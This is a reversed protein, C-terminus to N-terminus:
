SGQNRNRSLEARIEAVPIAGERIVRFESGSSFDLVTSPKGGPTNGADLTLIDRDVFYDRVQEVSSSPKKGARNASTSTVPRDFRTLLEAAVPHSSVRFGVGGTPGLLSKPLGTAKLVLTLPGPWYRGALMRAQDPIMRVHRQLHFLSPLLVPFPSLPDRGKLEQLDELADENLADVGLGYFTETPYAVIGGRTLESLAEELDVPALVIRV